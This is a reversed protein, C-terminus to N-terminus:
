KKWPAKGLDWLNNLDIKDKLTDMPHWFGDYQFAAMEGDKAIQDMPGQELICDENFSLYDFIRTDCVMFGGNIWNGDGKPKEKFSKVIGNSIELAGWRAKPQSATITLIKKHKNHFSLVKNIDLDTVCDGYTLMFPENNTYKQIKKIRSGTMSKEGTDILKIKWNESKDSLIEINNSELDINIDSFFKSYNLFYDKIMYGKFGLCIIFENFGCNSYIKMIHCLMPMGGIEVMPKPRLGTEESIRTGLGGALIVVKM